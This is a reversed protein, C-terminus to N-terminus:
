AESSEAAFSLGAQQMIGAIEALTVKGLNPTRLLDSKSFRSLDDLREIRANLLCNYTRVSFFATDKVRTDKTTVEQSLSARCKERRCIQAVRSKSVGHTRGIAAYTDGQIRCRYIELDRNKNVSQNM